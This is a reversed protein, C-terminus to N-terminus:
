DKTQERLIEEVESKFNAMSGVAISRTSRRIGSLREREIAQRV